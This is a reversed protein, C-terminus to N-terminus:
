GASLMMPLARLRLGAWGTLFLLLIVRRMTVTPLPKSRYGWRSRLLKSGGMSTMDTALPGAKHEMLVSSGESSTSAVDLLGM